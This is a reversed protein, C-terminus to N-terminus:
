EKSNTKIDTHLFVTTQVAAILTMHKSNKVSFCVIIHYSM